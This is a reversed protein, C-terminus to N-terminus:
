DKDQCLARKYYTESHAAVLMYFSILWIANYFVFFVGDLTYIIGLTFFVFYMKDNTSKYRKWQRIIFVAMLAVYLSFGIIGLDASAELYSNHAIQRTESVAQFNSSGIGLPFHTVTVEIAQRVLDMRPDDGVDTDARAKLLSNDYINYITGSLAVAVLMTLVLFAMKKRASVTKIYKIYILMGYLPIQILLVQRYATLLSVLFSFPLMLWFGWTWIRKFLKKQTIEALMFTLYSIYFTYYALTNANLKEDNLRDIASSMINLINHIAYNWASLYLIIYVGYLWPIKKEDRALISLVYVLMFAGLIMHLENAALEKDDAWLYAICDWAFLAFLIKEYINTHFGKNILTSLVFALPMAVYLGVTNASDSYLSAFAAFYLCLITTYGIIDGKIYRLKKLQM